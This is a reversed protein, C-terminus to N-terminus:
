AVKDGTDRKYEVDLKIGFGPWRLFTHLISRDILQEVSVSGRTDLGGYNKM